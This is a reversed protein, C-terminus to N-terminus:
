KNVTLGVTLRGHREILDAPLARDATAMPRTSARRQLATRM